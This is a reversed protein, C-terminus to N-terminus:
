TPAGFQQHIDRLSFFDMADVSDSLRPAPAGGPADHWEKLVRFNEAVIKDPVSECAQGLINLAGHADGAALRVCAALNLLINRVPFGLEEARILATKADGIRGARLYAAALEVQVCDHDPLSRAVAEREEVTYDFGKIAGIECQTHLLVREFDEYRGNVASLEAFDNRFFVDPTLGQAECLTEWDEAGPFFAIPSFWYNTPRESKILDISRQVSAPTEGRNIIIMYYGVAFGLAKAARTAQVIADVDTKKRMRELVEPDGSEVGYFISQCGALRMKRLLEEDVCDVRTNCGWLFRTGSAIIADCVAIARKRNTTFTDDMVLLIPVELRDLSKQFLELTRGPGHYRVRQKWMSYSGCFTCNAPCGRSTMVIHTTFDDFPTALADLDKIFQRRPGVVVESGQRWATGPIGVVPRGAGVHGLLELFTEEGEGVVVTDIAPYFKLTQVPLATPFHGGVTIHSGPHHKRVLDAVAGMGRRNSNFASIGFVDADLSSVLSVVDKWPTTILNHVSVEHGAQRVQAAISLLGYTVLKMDGSPERYRKRESSDVPPGFPVGLSPTEGDAPLQWLPPYFLAVRLRRPSTVRAAPGAVTVTECVEASKSSARAETRQGGGQFTSPDVLPHTLRALSEKWDPGQELFRRYGALAEPQRGLGKLADGLGRHAPAFSPSHELARRFSSAAEDLQGRALLVEGLDCHAEAFVPAITLARRFCAEAEELREAEMLVNGLTNHATAFEPNLELAKRLSKEAEELRQTKLLVIGLNAHAQFYAPHRAIANGFSSEAMQLKGLHLEATGLNLHGQADNPALQTAKALPALAEEYRGEMLLVNGLAKWGLPSAPWRRTVDRAKRAFAEYEGADFLSILEQQVTPPPVNQNARFGGAQPGRYRM